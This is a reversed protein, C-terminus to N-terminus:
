GWLGRERAKIKGKEALDMILVAIDTQRRKFHGSLRMISAGSNWLNIFENVDPLSWQFDINELATYTTGFKRIMYRKELKTATTTNLPEAMAM